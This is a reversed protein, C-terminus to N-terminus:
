ICSKNRKQLYKNKSSNPYPLHKTGPHHSQRKCGALGSKSSLISM